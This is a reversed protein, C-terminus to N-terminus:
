SATTLRIAYSIRRTCKKHVTESDQQYFDPKIYAQNMFAKKFDNYDDIYESWDELHRETTAVKTPNM